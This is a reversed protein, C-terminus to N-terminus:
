KKNKKKKKKKGKAENKFRTMLFYFALFLQIGAGIKVLKDNNDVTNEKSQKSKGTINDNGM